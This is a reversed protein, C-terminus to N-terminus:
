QFDAASDIALSLVGIERRVDMIKPPQGGDKSRGQVSMAVCAKGAM